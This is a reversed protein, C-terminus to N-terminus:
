LVLQNTLVELLYAFMESEACTFCFDRNKAISGDMVEEEWSFAAQDGFLARNREVRGQRRLHGAGGGLERLWAQSGWQRM